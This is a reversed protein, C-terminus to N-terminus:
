KAWRQRVASRRAASVEAASKRQYTRRHYDQNYEKRALPRCAACWKQGHGRDRGCRACPRFKCPDPEGYHGLAVSLEAMRDDVHQQSLIAGM